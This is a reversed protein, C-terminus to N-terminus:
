TKVFRRRLEALNDSINEGAKMATRLETALEPLRAKPVDRALRDVEPLVGSEVIRDSDPHALVGSEETLLALGQWAGSRDDRGARCPM